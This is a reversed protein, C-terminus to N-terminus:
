TANEVITYSAGSITPYVEIVLNNANALFTADTTLANQTVAVVNCSVISGAVNVAVVDSVAVNGFVNVAIIVNSVTNVSAGYTIIHSTTNESATFFQFASNSELEIAHTNYVHTILKAQLLQATDSTNFIIIDGVNGVSGFSTGSGTMFGNALANISVSGAAVPIINVNGSTVIASDQDEIVAYQGLMSTGVPHVLNMLTKKFEILAKEVVIVYSYNHYKASDQLYQDSSLFGDTTLYFGPFQILGNLFIANARALGDGYITVNGTANVNITANTTTAALNAFLDLAGQYNYV